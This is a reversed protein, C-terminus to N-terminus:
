KKPKTARRQLRLLSHRDKSQARLVSEWSGYVPNPLIFWQLGWLAGYESVRADRTAEMLRGEVEDGQPNDKRPDPWPMFDGFNDGLIELIRYSKCAQRRRESKDGIEGKSLVLDEGHGEVLPFGLRKLNGRTADEEATTRNTVYIVRIGMAHAAGFFGLAGPVPLAQQEATWKTWETSDFDKGDAILRANYASNDLVTEDVDAIIAVPLDEMGKQGVQEICATWKKDALAPGLQRRAQGFVQICSAKYEASRQMWLVATMQDNQAGSGRPAEGASPIALLLACAAPGALFLSRSTPNLM